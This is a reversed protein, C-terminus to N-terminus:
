KVQGALHKRFGKLVNSLNACQGGQIELIAYVIVMRKDFAWKQAWFSHRSAVAAAGVNEEATGKRKTM